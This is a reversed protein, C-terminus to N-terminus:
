ASGYGSPNGGGMFLGGLKNFLGGGLTGSGLSLLSTGLGLLNKNGAAEGSAQLKNADMVGSTVNGTLSTLDQGYQSALNALSGYGAAQGAAAGGTAALANKDIGALRDQWGGYEQKALGQAYKMADIESNGSQAMGSGAMARRRAEAMQQTQWDYGPGAQFAAQAAATGQPGNLGLSNLYMDTGGGYKTALTSLPDFAQVAQGLDGRGQNYANTLYGTGLRGYTQLIDKNANAAGTEVGGTFMDLLGM